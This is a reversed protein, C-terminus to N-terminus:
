VNQSWEDPHNQLFDRERYMGRGRLRPMKGQEQLFDRERYMGRGRLRPM